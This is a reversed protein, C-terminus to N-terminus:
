QMRGAGYITKRVELPEDVSWLWKKGRVRAQIQLLTAEVKLPAPRTEVEEAGARAAKEQLRVAQEKAQREVRRTVPDLRDQPGPPGVTVGVEEVRLDLERARAELKARIAAEGPLHGARAAGIERAHEALASVRKGLDHRAYLWAGAFGVAVVLVASIVVKM